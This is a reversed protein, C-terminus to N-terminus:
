LVYEKVEKELYFRLGDPCKPYYEDYSDQEYVVWKFSFPFILQIGIMKDTICYKINGICIVSQEQFYYTLEENSKGCVRFIADKYKEGQYETEEMHDFQVGSFDMIM